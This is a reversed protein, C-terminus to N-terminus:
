TLCRILLYTKNRWLYLSFSVIYFKFFNKFRFILWLLFFCVFLVSLYSYCWCYSPYCLISLFVKNENFDKLDSRFHCFLTFSFFFLCIVHSYIFLDFSFVSIYKCIYICSCVGVSMCVYIYIYLYIYIYIYIYVFACIRM